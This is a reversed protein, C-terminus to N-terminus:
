GARRLSEAGPKRLLYLDQRPNGLAGEPVFAVTEFAAALETRVASEPHFSACHNSGERRPVRVVGKGALFRRREPEDLSDLYTAGHTTVVLHGGPRLVRFLEAMWLKQLSEDLHTFVSLAYALDFTESEYALGGDLANVRFRAFRLHDSCWDVLTPNYDTGHIEPGNLDAWHRIVRGIGCGFDLIAGLKALEVGNRRLTDELCRAALAGSDLFWDLNETNAVRFILDGPPVPLGRRRERLRVPIGGIRDGARAAIRGLKGRARAVLGANRQPM